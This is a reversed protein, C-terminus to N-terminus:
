DELPADLQELVQFFISQEPLRWELRWLGLKGFLRGPPFFDDEGLERVVVEDALLLQNFSLLLALVRALDGVNSGGVVHLRLVKHVDLLAVRLDNAAKSLLGGLYSLVHGRPLDGDCLVEGSVVLTKALGILLVRKGSLPPQDGVDKLLLLGPRVLIM